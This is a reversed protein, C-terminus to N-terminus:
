AGRVFLYLLLGCLAVVLVFGLLYKWLGAAQGAFMPTLVEDGGRSRQQGHGGPTMPRTVASTSTLTNRATVVNSENLSELLQRRRRRYESRDIRGFRHAEDLARLGRNVQRERETM